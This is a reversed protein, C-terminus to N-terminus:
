QSLELREKSKNQDRKVSESKNKQDREQDRDEGLALDGLYLPCLKHMCNHLPTLDVGHSETTAMVTRADTSRCRFHVASCGVEKILTTISWMCTCWFKGGNERMVNDWQLYEQHTIQWFNRGGWTIPTGDEHLLQSCVRNSQHDCKYNGTWTDRSRPGEGPCMELDYWAGSSTNKLQAAHGFRGLILANVVLIALRCM